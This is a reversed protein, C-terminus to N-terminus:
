LSPLKTKLWSFEQRLEHSTFGKIRQVIQSPALTPLSNLFLYVHDKDTEFALVECNIQPCVEQILEKLREDLKGELIARRRRVIWVFHYNLLSVSTNCYRYKQAM